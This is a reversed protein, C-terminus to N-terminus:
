DSKKAAPNSASQQQKVAGSSELAAVVKAKDFGGQNYVTEGQPNIVAFTPFGRVGNAKGVDGAEDNDVKVFITSAETWEESMTGYM